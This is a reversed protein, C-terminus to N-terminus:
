KLLISGSYPPVTFLGTVALGDITTYPGDLTVSYSISTPNVLVKGKVFNRAYISTAGVRYYDGLPEILDLGHLKQLLPVDVPDVRFYMTNQPSSYKASLLMSCFGYMIVQETTAGSPLPSKTCGAIFYKGPENLFNDQIWTAMNISSLWSAESYWQDNYNRFAGESM